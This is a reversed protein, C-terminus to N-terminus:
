RHTLRLGFGFHRGEIPGYVYSTDFTTGFGPNGDYFGVVPSSQRYGFINDVAVSTEFLLGGYSFSKTFQITHVSYAPSVAHLPAGTAARYAQRVEPAFLPLAMPGTLRMSYDMEVGYPGDWTLSATGQYDPAFELAHRKVGEDLFVDMLTAGATFQLGHKLPGQVQLAVGRTVASGDLNGYSIVGPISYDPEIKNSFRTWFVDADLTVPWQTGMIQRVSGTVTVSREPRLHELVVTARGGALAHEETFLNVARFGAGTNLRVTTRAGPEWKVASRPTVIMGHLRHYDGRLGVLVRLHHSVQWDDQVFLGPVIRLDPQNAALEGQEDYRGTAPTSDDYRTLRTVLGVLPSHGHPSHPLPAWDLQVFGDSQTAHYETDGYFSEQEHHAGSARLHLDPMLRYNGILEARRTIISEGYVTSSGRHMGVDQLFVPTGANRREYYVKAALSGQTFGYRDLRNTKTFLALRTIQPRDSFGDGNRDQWNTVSNLTGSIITPTSGRWPVAAFEAAVEAHHTTFANVSLSPASSPNKTLINIVGGLAEPGYLTSVPGKIVEIQRILIPSIGNLGYISALSSMIPMGDILVATNPGDVGNIRINNTYCVGCDIQEYLGNVRALVKMVNSTPTSKLFRHPVVEVKVPSERVGIEEMTGTVVVVDTEYRLPAMVVDLRLTDGRLVTVEQTHATFGVASVAVEYTGPQPLVLFFDGKVDAATGLATQVIRVTAFPVAEGEASVNGTLVQSLVSWPLLFLCFFSVLASRTM